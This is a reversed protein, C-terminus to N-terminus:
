GQRDPLLAHQEFQEAIHDRVTSGMADPDHICNLVDKVTIM